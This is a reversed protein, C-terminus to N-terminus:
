VPRVFRSTDLRRLRATIQEVEPHGMADLISLAAHWAGRALDAEGAAEYSDGLHTLAIAEYNRGGSERLLEASQRYFRAAEQYEGLQHYAYGFATSPRRRM